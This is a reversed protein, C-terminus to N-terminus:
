NMSLIIIPLDKVNKIRRGSIENGRSRFETMMEMVDAM